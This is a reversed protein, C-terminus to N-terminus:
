ADKIVGEEILIDVATRVADLAGNNYAYDAESCDRNECAWRKQDLLHRIRKEAKRIKGDRDADSDCLKRYEEDKKRIVAFASRFLWAFFRLNENTVETRKPIDYGCYGLEHLVNRYSFTADDKAVMDATLRM